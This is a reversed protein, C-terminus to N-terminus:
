CGRTGELNLRSDLFEGLDKVSMSRQLTKPFPHPEFFGTLKRKRTFAVLGTKDPNVSLHLECWLETTHLAWQILGSVMSSFKGVALFCTMQMDSHM